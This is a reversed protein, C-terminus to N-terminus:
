STASNPRYSQKHLDPHYRWDSGTAERQQYWPQSKTPSSGQAWWVSRACLGVAYGHMTESTSKSKISSQSEVDLGLCIFLLFRDSVPKEFQPVLSPDFSLLKGRHPEVVLRECKAKEGAESGDKSWCGLKERVADLLDEEM